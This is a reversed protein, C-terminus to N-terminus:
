AVAVGKWGAGWNVWLKSNVHDVVLACKGLAGVAGTPQGNITPIYSMNTTDGTGLDTGPGLTATKAILNGTGDVSFNPSAFAHGSFTVGSFDVGSGTSYAPGGGTAPTPCGIITGATDMPWWGEYAGVAIAYKWGASTVNAVNSFVIGSDSLGGQGTDNNKLGHTIILAHRIDVNTGTSVYTDIELGTCAHWYAGPSDISAYFNAGYAAGVPTTSTGNDNSTAFSGGAIATYFKGQATNGTKGTIFLDVTIGNRNGTMSANNITQGIYVVQSGGPGSTTTNLSDSNVVFQHCAQTASSNVTGSPNYTLNLLSAMSTTIVPNKAGSLSSIGSLTGGTFAIANDNLRAYQNWGNGDYFDFRGTDSAYGFMGTSPAAPRTTSTWLPFRIGAGLGNNSDLGALGDAVNTIPTLTGSSIQLTAADLGVAQLATGSSGVLPTSAPVAAAGSVDAAALQRWEPAGSGSTPGALVTSQAQTGAQTPLGPLTALPAQGSAGLKLLGNATNTVAELTTGAVKLTVGDPSIQTFGTGNGGLLPTSPPATAKASLVGDSITITVNDPAVAVFTGGASGLLPATATPLIAAAMEAVTANVSQANQSLLAVEAGTLPLTAKQYQDFRPM